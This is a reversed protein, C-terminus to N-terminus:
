QVQHINTVKVWTNLKFNNSAATYNVHRFTEGTATKRGEFRQAYYSAVGNYCKGTTSSYTKSIAIATDKKLPLIKSVTDASAITLNITDSQAFSNAFFLVCIWSALFYKYKM